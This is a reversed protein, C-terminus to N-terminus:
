SSQAEFGVQAFLEHSGIEFFGMVFFPSTCHSLTYTRLEFGLVMFLYIFLLYICNLKSQQPMQKLVLLARMAQEPSWLTFVLSM